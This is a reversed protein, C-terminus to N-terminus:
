PNEDGLGLNLGGGESLVCGHMLMPHYSIGCSHAYKDIFDSRGDDRTQNVVDLFGSVALPSAWIHLCRM